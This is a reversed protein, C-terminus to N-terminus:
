KPPSGSAAYSASCTPNRKSLATTSGLNSKVDMYNHTRVAELGAPLKIVFESSEVLPTDLLVPQQREPLTAYLRSLGLAPVMQDFHLENDNWRGFKPARVHLELELPQEPDEEHRVTASVENVTPLIRSAIQEFLAQRHRAVTTRLVQRMQASRFSGFHIRINGSLNGSADLQLAATAESRQDTSRPVILSQKMRAQSHSVIMATEGEVDPSLAGAALGDINPDLLIPDSNPVTVRILPHTYCRANPCADSPDYKGREAALM